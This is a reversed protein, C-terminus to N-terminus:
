AEAQRAIRTVRTEVNRTAVGDSAANREIRTGGVKKVPLILVGNAKGSKAAVNPDAHVKAEAALVSVLIGCMERQPAASSRGVEALCDTNAVPERGQLPAARQALRELDGRESARLVMVVGIRKQQDPPLSLAM